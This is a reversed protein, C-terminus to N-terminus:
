NNVDCDPQSPCFTVTRVADRKFNPSEPLQLVVIVKVLLASMKMNNLAGWFLNYLQLLLM